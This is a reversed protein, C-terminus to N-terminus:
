PIFRLIADGDQGHRLRKSAYISATNTFKIKAKLCKTSLMASRSAQPTPQGHDSIIGNFRCITDVIDQM